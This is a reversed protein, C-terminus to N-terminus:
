ISKNNYSTLSGQHHFNRCITGKFRELFDSHCNFVFVFVISINVELLLYM